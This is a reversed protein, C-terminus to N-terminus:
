ASLGFAWADGELGTERVGWKLTELLNGRGFDRLVLRCRVEVPAGVGTCWHM